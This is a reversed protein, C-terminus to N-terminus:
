GNAPLKVRVEGSSLRRIRGQEDRVILAFEPDIDLVTGQGEGKETLLKVTKGMLISREKYAQYFAKEPLNKYYGWFNELIKGILRNRTQMDGTDCVYNAIDSLEDPFGTEPPCVNIGIGLVAYKLRESQGDFAGETLIGCVKKGDAFVDNVWKIGTRKGTVEEIAESVAVAAATTILAPRSQERSPDLILSMYIGTGRPSYFSRGQRGKGRTQCEALIVCGEAKQRAAIKKAEDNTSDVTELIHFHFIDQYRNMENKIADASLPAIKM